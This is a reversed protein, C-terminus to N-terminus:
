AALRGRVELSTKAVRAAMDKEVTYDTVLPLSGSYLAPANITESGDVNSIVAMNVGLGLHVNLEGTIEYKRLVENKLLRNQVIALVDEIAEWSPTNVSFEVAPTNMTSTGDPINGTVAAGTEAYVQMKRMESRNGQVAGAQVIQMDEQTIWRGSDDLFFRQRKAMYSERSIQVYGISEEWTVLYNTIGSGLVDGPGLDKLPIWTTGNDDSHCLGTAIINEVELIGDSNYGYLREIKEVEPVFGTVVNGGLPYSIRKGIVEYTSSERPHSFTYHTDVMTRLIQRKSMIVPPWTPLGLIGLQEVTHEEYVVWSDNGFVDQVVYKDVTTQTTGQTSSFVELPTQITGHTFTSRDVRYSGEITIPVFANGLWVGFTVQNTNGAYGKYREPRFEGLNGLVKIQTPKDSEIIEEAVLRVNAPTWGVAWDEEVSSGDVILLKGGAEYFIPEFINTLGVIASMFTQPPEVSFQRVPYNLTTNAGISIGMMSALIEIIEHSTWGGNGYEDGLKIHPNYDLHEIRRETLPYFDNLFNNYEAPPLSMFIQKKKPAKEAIKGLQTLAHIRQRWGDISLEKAAKTISCLLQEGAITVTIDDGVNYNGGLTELDIDVQGFPLNRQRSFSIKNAYEIEAM